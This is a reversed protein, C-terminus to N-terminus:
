GKEHKIVPECYVRHKLMVNEEVQSSSLINAGRGGDYEYICLYNGPVLAENAWELLLEYVLAEWISNRDCYHIPTESFSCFYGKNDKAEYTDFDTLINIYKGSKAKDGMDKFVLVDVGGNKKFVVRINEVNAFVLVFSTREVKEIYPRVSFRHINNRLWKKFNLFIFTNRIRYKKM